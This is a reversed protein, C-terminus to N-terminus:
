SVVDNVPHVLDTHSLPLTSSPSIPSAAPRALTSEMVEVTFNDDLHFCWFFSGFSQILKNHFTTQNIRKEICIQKVISYVDINEKKNNNLGM